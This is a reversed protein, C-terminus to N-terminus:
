KEGPREKEKEKEKMRRGAPTKTFVSADGDGVDICHHHHQLGALGPDGDSPHLSHAPRRGVEARRAAYSKELVQVDDACHGPRVGCCMVCTHVTILM